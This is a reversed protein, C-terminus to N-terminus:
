STSVAVGDDASGVVPETPVAAKGRFLWIGVVIL